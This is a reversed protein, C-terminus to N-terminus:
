AYYEASHPPDSEATEPFRARGAEPAFPFTEPTRSFLNFWGEALHLGGGFHPRHSM